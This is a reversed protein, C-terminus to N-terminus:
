YHCFGIQLQAVRAYSKGKFLERFYDWVEKASGLDEVTLVYEPSVHLGIIAKAQSSKRANTGPDVGEWLDKYILFQKIRASWLAYNSVTLPEIRVKDAEAM